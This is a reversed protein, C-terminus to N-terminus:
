IRLFIRPWWHRGCRGFLRSREAGRLRLRIVPAQSRACLWMLGPQPTSPVGPIRIAGEPFIMVSEGSRLAVLLSRLSHPRSPDIPVVRGLGCWSLLRLGSASLPNTSAYQTAVAFCLRQPSALAILLGDLFSIHNCTVIVSRANRLTDFVPTRLVRCRLLWLLIPGLFRM